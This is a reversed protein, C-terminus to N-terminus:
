TLLEIRKYNNNIKVIPSFELYSYTKNRSKSTKLNIEVKNKIPINSLGPYLSIDFDSYKIDFVKVIKENIINSEDWQNVM